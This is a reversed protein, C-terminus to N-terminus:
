LTESSIAATKNQFAFGYLRICNCGAKRLLETYGKKKIQAIASLSLGKLRVKSIQAEAKSHKIELVIGTQEPSKPIMIIDCRGTGTAVENKVIYEDFLVALIGTVANHYNREDHLDYYSLSFLLYEELISKINEDNGEKLSTKLQEAISLTSDSIDSGIIETKFVEYIEKNPISYTYLDELYNDEDGKISLYGTQALFSLSLGESQGLDRYSLSSYFPFKKSENNLFDLLSPRADEKNVIELLLANEGTNAWYTKLKRESVFNLISWPNAIEEGSPLIYGGYYSWVIDLDLKIEYDELMKSVEEKNFGFYPALFRSSISSM